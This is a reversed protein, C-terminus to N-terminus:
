VKVYKMQLDLVKKIDCGMVFIRTTLRQLGYYPIEDKWFEINRNQLETVLELESKNDNIFGVLHSKAFKDATIKKFAFDVAEKESQFYNLNQREGRETYYWVYLSGFIDLGCGEFINRNGIGYTDSFCNETLWGDLQKITSLNTSTYDSM